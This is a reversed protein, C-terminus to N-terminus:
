EFRVGGRPGFYARREICSLDADASRYLDIYSTEDVGPTFVREPDRAVYDFEQRWNAGHFRSKLADAVDALSRFREMHSADSYSYGSGGHWLGFWSM